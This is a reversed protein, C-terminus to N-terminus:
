RVFQQQALSTIRIESPRVTSRLCFACCERDTRVWTAAVGVAAGTAVGPAVSRFFVSRCPTATIVPADDPSPRAAAFASASVPLHCTTIAHRSKRFAALAARDAPM